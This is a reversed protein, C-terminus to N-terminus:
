DTPTDRDSSEPTASDERRDGPDDPRHGLYGALAGALVGGITSLLAASTTDLPPTKPSAAFILAVAWGGGITLALVFAAAGRPDRPM